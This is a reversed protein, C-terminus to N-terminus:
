PTMGDNPRLTDYGILETDNPVNWPPNAGIRSANLSTIVLTIQDYQNWNHQFMPSAEPAPYIDKATM